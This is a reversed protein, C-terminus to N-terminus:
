SVLNQNKKTQLALSNKAQVKVLINLRPYDGLSIEGIDRGQDCAMKTAKGGRGEGFSVRAKM